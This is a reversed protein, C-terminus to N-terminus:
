KMSFFYYFYMHFQTKKFYLSANRGKLCLSIERIIVLNLRGYLSSCRPRNANIISRVAAHTVNFRQLSKYLPCVGSSTCEVGDVVVINMLEIWQLERTVASTNKVSEWKEACTKAAPSRCRIITVTVKSSNGSPSECQKWWTNTPVITKGAGQDSESTTQGASVRYILPRWATYNWSM